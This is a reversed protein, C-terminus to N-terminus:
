LFFMYVEGGLDHRHIMRMGLFGYLCVSGISLMRRWSICIKAHTENENIADWDKLVNWRRGDIDIFSHAILTQIKAYSVNEYLHFNANQVSSDMRLCPNCITSDVSFQMLVNHRYDIQERDFVFCVIALAGVNGKPEFFGTLDCTAECRYVAALLFPKSTSLEVGKWILPLGSNVFLQTQLRHLCSSEVQTIQYKSIIPLRLLDNISISSRNLLVDFHHHIYQEHWNPNQLRAEEVAIRGTRSVSRLPNDDANPTIFGSLYTFVDQEPFSDNSNTRSQTRSKNALLPSMETLNGSADTYMLPTVLLWLLRMVTTPHM